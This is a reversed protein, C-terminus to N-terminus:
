KATLAPMRPDLSKAQIPRAGLKAAEKLLM